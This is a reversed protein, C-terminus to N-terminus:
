KQPLWRALFKLSNEGMVKRIETESFGQDLMAQTLASLEGADFATTVAGDFDSGLAVHDEGLLDIAYRIMKVIGQPSIDCAAGAWFGLAIIGGKKAIQKLLQDDINRATNCIGKVGTHSMVIPRKALTLVDRVVAESSHSVDIIIKKEDMKAIVQKGFATLGAKSTGHLSGGLENDFFHQLGFMRFGAKFLVDVNEIKGELPHAGEIGLLGAVLKPHDQRSALVDLLEQKSRVLRLAHPAKDELKKLRKAQYLARAKLSTWTAPPWTHLLSLLTVSDLTEGSNEDYNLGSPSKTVVTFMQIALNGHRMRPVDSQGYDELALLDRDWLLSDTHWDMVILNNHLKFAQESVAFPAHPKIINQGREVIPPVLTRVAALIIFVVVAIVVGFATIKRKKM